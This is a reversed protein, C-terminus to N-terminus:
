FVSPLSISEVLQPTGDAEHIRHAATERVNIGKPNRKRRERRVEDSVQYRELVLARAEQRTIPRGDIDRFEFPRNEKLVTLVRAGLHSMVAGM